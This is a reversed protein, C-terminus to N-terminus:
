KKKFMGMFGKKAPAPQPPAYGGAAALTSGHHPVAYVPQPQQQQYMQGVPQQQYGSAVTSATTPRSEDEDQQDYTPDISGVCLKVLYLEPTLDVGKKLFEDAELEYYSVADIVDGIAANSDLESLFEQAQQDRGCQAFQYVVTKPPFGLRSLERKVESIVNYVTERPEPYPEGDTIVIVLVPKELRGERLPKMVMPDLIKKKLEGGLPTTYKFPIGQLLNQVDYAARIHDGRVEANMFRVSIGDDDFITAVEAVRELIVKMDDIRTGEEAGKMSGSDDCYFVLDYLALASLDFAIEQPLRWATSIKSFDVTALKRAIEQIRSAPYFISLNNANVLTNLHRHIINYQDPHINSQPQPIPAFTQPPPVYAQQPQPPQNAPSPVYPQSAAAVPSPTIAGGNPNASKLKSALGM